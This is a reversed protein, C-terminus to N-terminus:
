ANGDPKYEPPLPIANHAVQIVERVSQTEAKGDVRPIPKSDTKRKQDLAEQVLQVAKQVLKLEISVESLKETTADRMMEVTVIIAAAQKQIETVNELINRVPQSGVKLLTDLARNHILAQDQVSNLAGSLAMNSEGTLKGVNLIIEQWKHEREIMREDSKEIHQLMQSNLKATQQLAAAVENGRKRWFFLYVLLGAALLALVGVAGVNAINTILKDFSTINQTIQNLDSLVQSPIPTPTPTEVFAFL